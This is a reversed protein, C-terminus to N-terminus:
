VHALLGAVVEIPGGAWLKVATYSRMEYGQVYLILLRSAIM